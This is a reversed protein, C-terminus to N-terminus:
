FVSSLGSQAQRTSVQTVLPSDCTVCHRKNMSTDITECDRASMAKAPGPIACPHQIYHKLYASGHHMGQGWHILCLALLLQFAGRTQIIRLSSTVAM